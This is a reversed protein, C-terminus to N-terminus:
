RIKGAMRKQRYTRYDKQARTSEVAVGNTGRVPEIPRPASERGTPPQADDPEKNGGELKQEIKALERGMSAPSLRNVRQAEKPNSAFYYVLDPGMESELLAMQMEGSVEIDSGQVVEDYDDYRGQADALRELYAEQLSDVHAKQSQERSATDRQSLAREVRPEVSDNLRYDIMADIYADETDFDDRQPKAPPKPEQARSGAMQEEMAELRGQLRGIERDKDNLKNRLNQFRREVSRNRKREKAETEPQTDAAEQAPLSEQEEAEGVVDSDDVPSLNALRQTRYDQYDQEAM